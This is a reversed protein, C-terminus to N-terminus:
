REGGGSRDAHGAGSARGLVIKAEQGRILRGINAAHRIVVLVAVLIAFETTQYDAILYAYVPGLVLSVLAALSSYRFLAATVLWSAGVLLGVPWAIAILCGLASAVGKGGWGLPTVAVILLIGAGTRVGYGGASILGFAAVLVFLVAVGRTMERATGLRLWIPYLHGLLAGIGTMVAFDQGYIAAAIALPVGAKAGDLLLTALAMPKNGTRLVNTAGINGSGIRRIDGFGALRALILGFPISGLLYGILPAALWLRWTYEFTGLPDPM